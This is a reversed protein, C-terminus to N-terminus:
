RQHRTLLATKVCDAANEAEATVPKGTRAASKDRCKRRQGGAYRGVDGVTGSAAMDIHPFDRAPYANM